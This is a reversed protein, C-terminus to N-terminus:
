KRYFHILHTMKGGDSCFLELIGDVLSKKEIVHLFFVQM